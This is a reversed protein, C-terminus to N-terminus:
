QYEGTSLKGVVDPFYQIAAKERLTEIQSEVLQRRKRESLMRKIDPLALERAVPAERAGLLYVVIMGEGLEIRSTQGPQMSELKDLVPRPLDEAAEDLHTLRYALGAQELWTLLEGIPPNAGLREVVQEAGVAANPDSNLEVILQRFDYIRRDAYLAPHADYYEMLETPGPEEPGGDIQDLYYQALVQDRARELAMMVQPIRDLEINQAQQVLLRRDVLQQIVHDLVARSDDQAGLDLQDLELDLQHVTIEDSNVRAVVQGTEGGEPDSGCAALALTLIPWCFLRASTSM